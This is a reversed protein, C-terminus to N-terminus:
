AAVPPAASPAPTRAMVVATGWTPAGTIRLTLNASLIGDIPANVQYGVVYAAFDVQTGDPDPFILRFNRKVRDDFDKILGTDPAQHPDAPVFNLEATLQGADKFSPLMERYGGTSSHSTADLTEITLNLATISKVEAITSFTEPPTPIGGNGRQLQTGFGSVAQTPM